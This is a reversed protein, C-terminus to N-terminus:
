SIKLSTFSSQSFCLVGVFKFPSASMELWTEKEKEWRFTLSGQVQISGSSAREEIFSLLFFFGNLGFVLFFFFFFCEQSAMHKIM